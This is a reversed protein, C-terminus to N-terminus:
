IEKSIFRCIHLGDIFNRFDISYTDKITEFLTEIDKKADENKLSKSILRKIEAYVLNSIDSFTKSNESDYIKLFEGELKVIFSDSFNEKLSNIITEYSFFIDFGSINDRRDGSRKLVSLCVANKGSDKAKKEANRAENLVTMLPTKYHAIVVGASFTFDESLDFKQKLPKNVIEDWKEKLEKLVNFLYNINVFGLFDEGGAYVTIGKPENVISKVAKAFELLQKSLVQHFEKVRGKELNGKNGSLWEGMDDGDFMIVAYYSTQKLKMENLDDKFKKYVKKYKNCEETKCKEYEKKCEELDDKKLKEKCKKYEEDCKKFYNNKEFYSKTINEKFFLQSDKNLLPYKKMICNPLHMLAVEATSEFSEKANKRKVYCVGCLGEGETIINDSIVNLKKKKLEKYLKRGAIVVNREGCISCKRGREGEGGGFQTFFKTNKAGALNKEVEDFAKKYNNDNIESIAWYFTFYNEIHEEIKKDNKDNLGRLFKLLNDEIENAIKKIKDINKNEFEVLFRNPYSSNDTSLIPFIEKVGERKCIRLGIETMCSLIESSGFLDKLKRSQSIFDQVPTVTFLFLYSM